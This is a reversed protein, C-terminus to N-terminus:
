MAAMNPILRRQRSRWKRREGGDAPSDVLPYRWPLTAISKM